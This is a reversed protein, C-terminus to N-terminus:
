PSGLSFFGSFLWLCRFFFVRFLWLQVYSWNGIVMELGTDLIFAAKSWNSEILSVHVTVSGVGVDRGSEPRECEDLLEQVQEQVLTIESSPFIVM